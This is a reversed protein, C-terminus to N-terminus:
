FFGARRGTGSGFTKMADKSKWVRKLRECGTCARRTQCGMVRARGMSFWDGHNCNFAFHFSVTEVIEGTFEGGDM